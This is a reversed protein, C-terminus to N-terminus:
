RRPAPFALLLINPVAVELQFGGYVVLGIDVNKQPLFFPPVM